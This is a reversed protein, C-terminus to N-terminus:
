SAEFEGFVADLLEIDIDFPANMGLAPDAAPGHLCTYAGGKLSALDWFFDDQMRDPALGLFRIGRPSFVFNACEAGLVGAVHTAQSFACVQEEFSMRAPLVNSYGRTVFFDRLASRNRLPRRGAGPRSIFIKKPFDNPDKSQTVHRSLNELVEVVLPSKIWPQVTLPAPYYLQDANVVQDGIFMLQQHRIGFFALSDAFVHAMEKSTSSVLFVADSIDPLGLVASVRPLGEILWHGYNTDWHQQLMVAKKVHIRNEEPLPTMFRFGDVGQREIGCFETEHGRNLLSEKVLTGDTAFVLNCFIKAEPLLYVAAEPATVEGQREMWQRQGALAEDLPGFIRPPMRSYSRAGPALAVREAIEAAPKAHFVPDAPADSM